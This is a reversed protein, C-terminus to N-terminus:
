HALLSLISRREVGVGTRPQTSAPAELEARLRAWHEDSFHNVGFKIGAAAAYIFAGHMENAAHEPKEWRYVLVGMRKIPVRRECDLEEFYRLPM